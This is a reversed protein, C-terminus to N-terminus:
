DVVNKNSDFNLSCINKTNCNELVINLENFKLQPCCIVVFFADEWIFAFLSECKIAGKCELLFSMHQCLFFM